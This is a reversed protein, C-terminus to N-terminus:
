IKSIKQKDIVWWEDFHSDTFAQNSDLASQIQIYEFLVKEYIIKFSVQNEIDNKLYYM